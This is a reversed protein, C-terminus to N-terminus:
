QVRIEGLGVAKTVQGFGVVADRGVAANTPVTATTSAFGGVEHGQTVNDREVPSRTRAVARRDKEALLDRSGRM